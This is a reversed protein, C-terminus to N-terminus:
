SKKWGPDKKFQSASSVPTDQEIEDMSKYKSEEFCLKKQM